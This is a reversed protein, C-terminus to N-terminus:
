NITLPFNKRKKLAAKKFHLYGVEFGKGFKKDRAKRKTVYKELDDMNNRKM